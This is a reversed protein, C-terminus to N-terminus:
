GSCPFHIHQTRYTPKTAQHFSCILPLICINFMHSGLDLEPDGKQFSDVMKSCRKVTSLISECKKGKTRASGLPQLEFVVISIGRSSVPPLSNEPNRRLNKLHAPIDRPRERPSLGEEFLTLFIMSKRFFMLNFVLMIKM